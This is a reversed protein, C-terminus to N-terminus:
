LSELTSPKGTERAWVAGAPLRGAGVDDALIKILIQKIDPAM